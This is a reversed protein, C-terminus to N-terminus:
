NREEHQKEWEALQQRAEALDSDTRRLLATKLPEETNNNRRRQDELHAIRKKIAEIREAPNGALPHGLSEETAMELEEPPPTDDLPEPM